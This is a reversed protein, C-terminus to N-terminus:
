AEVPLKNWEAKSITPLGHMVRFSNIHRATTASWDDWMRIFKGNVIKCVTTDYSLLSVVDGERIVKAKGYYSARYECAQPELETITKM